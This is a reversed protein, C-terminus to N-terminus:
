QICAIIARNLENRATRNLAGELKANNDLRDKNNKELLETRRFGRQLCVTIAEHNWPPKTAQNDNKLM